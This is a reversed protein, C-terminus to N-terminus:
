KSFPPKSAEVKAARAREILAAEDKSLPVLTVHWETHSRLDVPLIEGVLDPGPADWLPMDVSRGNWDAAYGEKVIRVDYTGYDNIAATCPTTGVERDNLWVRAGAPESTISITREVCGAFPLCALVIATRMRM